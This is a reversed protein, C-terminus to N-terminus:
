GLPHPGGNVTRVEMRKGDTVKIEFRVARPVDNGGLLFNLKEGPEILREEIQMKQISLLAGRSDLFEIHLILGALPKGHVLITGEFGVEGEQRTSQIETFEVGPKPKKAGFAAALSGALLAL